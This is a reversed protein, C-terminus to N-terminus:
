SEIDVAYLCSQLVPMEFSILFHYMKLIDHVVEKWAPFSLAKKDM